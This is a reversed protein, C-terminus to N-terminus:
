NKAVPELNRCQEHEKQHMKAWIEQKLVREQLNNYRDQKQELRRIDKSIMQLKAYLGGAIFVVVIVDKLTFGLDM